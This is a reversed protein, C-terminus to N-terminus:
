DGSCYRLGKIGAYAGRLNIKSKEVVQGAEFQRIM